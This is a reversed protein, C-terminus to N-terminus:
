EALHKVIERIERRLLMADSRSIGLLKSLIVSTLRVPQYKLSIRLTAEALPSLLSSLLRLEDQCTLSENGGYPSVLTSPFASGDQYRNRIRMEKEIFMLLDNRALTVLWSSFQTLRGEITRHQSDYTERARLSSILSIAFFDDLEIWTYRRHLSAILRCVAVTDGRQCDIKVM